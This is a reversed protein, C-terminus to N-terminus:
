KLNRSIINSQWEFAQPGQPIGLSYKYDSYVATFNSFLRENFLHNWRFTGTGNGWKFGFREGVTWVDKGFYGSLFIRNKPNIIYNVKANLDYFYFVNDKINEDNSLRTFTDFYTRRGAIMFSSKEKIIPGELNLRSSILGIGGQGSFQKMNGERQRVDMVSSLRGGYNAPIGGKYLKLDKIADANFISFFGFLHSSNYVPAEDLLILNQDINGGRVNFGSAGEGVSSVGPFLQINRIIDVEGMLQPLRKIEVMSIQNVSMQIDEVNKDIKEGSVVVEELTIRENMLDINLSKNENLNVEITQSHYGVFSYTLSYIGTPLSLSYFGYVNSTTGGKIESVYVSAGILDEGSGSDKLYGNIIYKQQAMLGHFGFFLFIAFYLKKM